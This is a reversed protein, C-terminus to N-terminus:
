VINKRIFVQSQKNPLGNFPKSVGSPIMVKLRKHYGNIFGDIGSKTMDDGGWGYDDFIMYGGQKLKRFALVADELVYEPEHNADIYIIDFFEDDLKPLEINSFGNIIKIKNSEGSGRINEIFMKYIEKHQGKYETYDNYDVWSDICYLKSANNKGYTKAVTLLNAGYFAGIELYNIPKDEIPITGFWNSATRYVVGRFPIEM